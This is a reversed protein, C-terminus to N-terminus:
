WMILKKNDIYPTLEGKEDIAVIFLAVADVAQLIGFGGGTCFYLLFVGADTGLYLRHLGTWGTVGLACLTFAIWANKEQNEFKLSNESLTLLEADIRDYNAEVAQDFVTNIADENLVYPNNSANINFCFLCIAFM